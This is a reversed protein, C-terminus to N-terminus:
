FDKSFENSELYRFGTDEAWALHTSAYKGVHSGHARSSDSSPEPHRRSHEPAEGLGFEEGAIKWIWDLARRNNSITKNFLNNYRVVLGVLERAFTM